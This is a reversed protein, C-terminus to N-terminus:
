SFSLVSPREGNPIWQVPQGGNPIYGLQM